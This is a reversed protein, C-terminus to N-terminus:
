STHSYTRTFQSLLKPSFSININLFAATRSIRLYQQRLFKGYIKPFLMVSPNTVTSRRLNKGASSGFMKLITTEFSMKMPSNICIAVFVAIM